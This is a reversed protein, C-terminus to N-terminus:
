ENTSKLGIKMYFLTYKKQLREKQSGRLLLIRLIENRFSLSTCNWSCCTQASVSVHEAHQKGIFM